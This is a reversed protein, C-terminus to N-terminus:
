TRNDPLDGRDIGLYDESFTIIEADDLRLDVDPDLLAGIADIQTQYPLDELQPIVYMKTPRTLDVGKDCLTRAVKEIVAPGLARHPQLQSWYQQLEEVWEDGLTGAPEAMSIDHQPAPGTDSEATAPSTEGATEEADTDADVAIDWRILYEQIADATIDTQSPAGVHIFAFRRIFAYSLDFLSMKDHTNMTAIFRWTNPICYRYDAVSNGEVDGKTVLEIENGDDDKFSTTVSDGALASFLSGFAKDVNARNLEDVILWENTPNGDDDQFRNLFVGPSFNLGFQGEPQYGGITDFSSWDATATVMTVTSDTLKAAVQKALESKGTGPPGVLVIHQGGTLAQTMQGIIEPLVGEGPYYLNEIEDPSPPNEFEYEPVADAYTRGADVSGLITRAADHGLEGITINSLGTASFPYSDPRATSASNTLEGIVQHMPIPTDFRIVDVPLRRYRTGNQTTETAAESQRSYGQFEDDVLHVFLANASLKRPSIDHRTDEPILVQDDHFDVIDQHVLYIAPPDDQELFGVIDALTPPDQFQARESRGEIFDRGEESLSYTSDDLEVYGISHLYNLRRKVQELTEWEVGIDEALHDNLEEATAEHRFLEELVERFGLIESDFTGFYTEANAGEALWEGGELGPSLREGTKALIKIRVLFPIIRDARTDGELSFEDEIWDALEEVLPSESDVYRLIKEISEIQTDVGSPISEVSNRPPM